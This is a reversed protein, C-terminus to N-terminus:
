NESKIEASLVVNVGSIDNFSPFIVMKSTQPETKPGAATQTDTAVLSRYWFAAMRRSIEFSQRGSIRHASSPALKQTGSSSAINRECLRWNLTIQTFITCFRGNTIVAKPPLSAARWCAYAHNLLWAVMMGAALLSGSVLLTNESM